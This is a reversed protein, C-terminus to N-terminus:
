CFLFSKSGMALLLDQYATSPFGGCHELRAILSILADASASAVLYEEQTFRRQRYNEYAQIFARGEEPTPTVKFDVGWDATFQAAARGVMEPESMAGLSDWDIVSVLKQNVFIANKIGWDTHALKLPQPYAKLVKRAAIAKQAIWGAGRTTKKLNFLINHPLPWLKNGFTRQFNNSLPLFQYYDILESFIALNKALETRVAESHPDEKAGPIFEYLGAFTNGFSFIPSLVKPAPFGEQYLREQIYNTQQLFASSLQQPFVKLIVNKEELKFGFVVGNSTQLFLTDLITSHLFQQIPQRIYTHIEKPDALGVVDKFIQKLEEQQFYSGLYEEIM